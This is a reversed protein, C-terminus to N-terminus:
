GLAFGLVCLFFSSSPRHVNHTKQCTNKREIQAINLIHKSPSPGHGDGSVDPPVGRTTPGCWHGPWILGPRTRDLGETWRRPPFPVAKPGGTQPLKQTEEM